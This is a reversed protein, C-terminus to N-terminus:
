KPNPTLTPGGYPLWVRVLRGNLWVWVWVGAPPRALEPVTTGGAARGAEGVEGLGMAAEAAFFSGTLEWPAPGPAGPVGDVKPGLGLPGFASWPVPPPRFSSGQTLGVYYSEWNWGHPSPGKGWPRPPHPDQPDTGHVGDGHASMSAM